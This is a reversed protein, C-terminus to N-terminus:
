LHRLDTMELHHGPYREAHNQHEQIGYARYCGTSMACSWDCDACSLVVRAPSGCGSSRRSHLQCQYEPAFDLAALLEFEERAHRGAM